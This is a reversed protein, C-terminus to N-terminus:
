NRKLSPQRAMKQELTYCLLGPGAARSIWLSVLSLSNVSDTKISVISTCYSLRISQREVPINLNRKNNYHWAGATAM